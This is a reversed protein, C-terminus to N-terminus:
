EIKEELVEAVLCQHQHGCTDCPNHLKVDLRVHLLVVASGVTVSVRVSEGTAIARRYVEVSTTPGEPDLEIKEGPSPLRDFRDQFVLVDM